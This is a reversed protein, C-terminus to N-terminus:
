YIKNDIQTNRVVLIEVKNFLRAHCQVMLVFSVAIGKQQNLYLAVAKANMFGSALM